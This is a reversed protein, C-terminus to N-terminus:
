KSEELDAWTVTEAVNSCGFPIKAYGNEGHSVGWSNRVFWVGNKGLSDDWGVIVEIHNTGGNVCGTFVGDGTFRQLASNAHITTGVPGHEMIAQKIETVTPRRGKAGVYGWQSLRYKPALGGKCRVDRAQYPFQGEDVAGKRKHYEHAFFGGRAASGSGSCSIVEQVSINEEVGRHIKILSELVGVTGQAWCDNYRQRKVPTLGQAYFRWDYFKPLEWVRYKFTRKWKGMSEWNKPRNLGTLKSLPQYAAWPQRTSAQIACCFLLVAILTKM